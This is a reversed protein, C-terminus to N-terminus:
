EGEVHGGAKRWAELVKPSDAYASLLTRPRRDIVRAFAAVAADKEDFAVHAKGLLVGIEIATKADLYDADDALHELAAKVGAFDGLLWASRARPLAEAADAIAKRQRDRREKSEADLPPQRGARVHVHLNPVVLSDGKEISNHDLNNYRKLLDAQRADGYYYTAIMALSEGATATHTVHMPLALATGAALSDDISIGNFEALFTARRADGLYTQALSEFTDGKATAIERTVPIKVRDGPSVGRIRHTKPDALHNETVVFVAQAKDGYYEAAIVDLTDGARVRYSVTDATDVQAHASAVLAVLLALVAARTV